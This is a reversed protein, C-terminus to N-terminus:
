RNSALNSVIPNACREMDALGGTYAQCGNVCCDIMKTDVGGDKELWNLLSWHSMNFPFALTAQLNM